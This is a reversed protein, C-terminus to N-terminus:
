PHSIIRALLPGRPRGTRYRRRHATHTAIRRVIGRQNATARSAPEGAGRGVRPERRRLRDRRRPRCGGPAGTERRAQGVRLQRLAHLWLPRRRPRRPRAWLPPPSRACRSWVVWGRRTASATIMRAGRRRPRAATPSSCMSRRATAACCWAAPRRGARRGRRATCASGAAARASASTACCRAARGCRRTSVRSTSAGRTAWTATTAATSSCFRPAAHRGVRAVGCTRCVTWTAWRRRTASTSSSVALPRCSATAATRTRSSSPVATPAPPPGRAPEATVRRCHSQRAARRIAFAPFACDCPRSRAACRALRPPRARRARRKWCAQRRM